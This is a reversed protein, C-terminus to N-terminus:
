NSRLPQHFPDKDLIAANIKERLFERLDGERELLFTLEGLTSLIFVARTLSEKCSLVAASTYGSASIFIGRAHGRVLHQAVDGPGIADKWWKIEVLFVSSPKKRGRSWGSIGLYGVTTNM